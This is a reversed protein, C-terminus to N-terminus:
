PKVFCHRRMIAGQWAQIGAFSDSKGDGGIFNGPDPIHDLGLYHGIEHAFTNATNNRTGNLSVVSGTMGKVNKDCSGDIASWGDADVMVRVVFVDHADNPVTWDWTLDEAEAQSDIIANAGAESLSINWFSVNRVNIRVKAYMLRTVNIANDIDAMDAATFDEIGVRIINLDLQRVPLPAPTGGGGGTPEDDGNPPRIPRM